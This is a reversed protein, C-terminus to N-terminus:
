NIFTHSLINNRRMFIFINITLKPSIDRFIYHGIKNQIKKRFKLLQFHIHLNFGLEYKQMYMYLALLIFLVILETFSDHTFYNLNTDKNRKQHKM